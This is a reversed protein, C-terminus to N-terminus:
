DNKAGKILRKEVREQGLVKMIEHLNPGSKKGTIAVRIITVFDTVDGLFGEFVEDQKRAKGSFNHKIALAKVKEFWASNDDNIDYISAYETLIKSRLNDDTLCDQEFETPEALLYSLNPKVDEWKAIDKRARKNGREIGFVQIVYEKNELLYTYFEPDFEEAWKVVNDYVEEKTMRGIINKSINDLKTFDFYPNNSGVKAFSFPFDEIPKDPNNTRWPEFDSNILGLIYDIVAQNPYGSKFFFRMDAEPDYRKSIKRKHGTIRDNISITPTHGYKIPRLGFLKFMEIHKATSAYWEEARIVDTTGMLYDDVMHAFAYPPLGDGKLLIFDEDNERLTRKGRFIDEIEFKKNKDGQSKLRIAFDKKTKLKEVVQEFSLNRCPDKVVFGQKSEILQKRREIIAKKDDLKECFCPYANGIEVFRKAFSHYIDKRESQIYPGYAGENELGFGENPTLGLKCIVNLAIMGANEVQRKTDTDELRLYFVGGSKKAGLYDILTGFLGGIHYYGTPSPAFRLVKANKPLDRKPYKSEWDEVTKITHPFLLEALKKNDM